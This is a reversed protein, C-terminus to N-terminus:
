TTHEFTQLLTGGIYVTLFMGVDSRTEIYPCIPSGHISNKQTHTSAFIKATKPSSLPPTKM